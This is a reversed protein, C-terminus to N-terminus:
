SPRQPEGGDWVPSDSQWQHLFHLVFVEIPLAIWVTAGVALVLAGVASVRLDTFWIEPRRWLFAVVLTAFTLIVLPVGPRREPWRAMAYGLGTRAEVLAWLCAAVAVIWGVVVMVVVSPTGLAFALSTWSIWLAAVWGVFLAPIAWFAGAEVGRLADALCVESSRGAIGVLVGHVFGGAAGVLFFLTATFPLSPADPVGSLFAAIVLLAEMSLGGALAWSLAIRGCLGSDGKLWTLFGSPKATQTPTAM